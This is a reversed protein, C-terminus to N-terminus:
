LRSGARNYVGGDSPGKEQAYLLELRGDVSSEYTNHLDEGHGRLHVAAPERNRLGQAIM